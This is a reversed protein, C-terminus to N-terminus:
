IKTIGGPPNGDSPPNNDNRSNGGRKFLKKFLAAVALAGMIIFKKAALLGVLLLKFLGMKVAIGGAVLAAIGYTAVKDIKPDFDAYRNGEKFDVMALIQPTQQDITAFQDISSVANLELVGKRGLMRISYNLTDHSEDGFKLDRAWYLKHTAADYHPPAAWGVLTIPPYGHEQRQKNNEAVGAQMKKLLDDYNIKSADNDKVYGGETYDITVVWCNSSLPTMGAPILLGLPKNQPPPNGWLKVLVTEADDPGLYSFGPPVTLTALGNHLDIVGRQYKLSKALTIIEALRNTDDDQALAPGCLVLTMIAALLLSFTSKM